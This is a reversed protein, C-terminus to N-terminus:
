CTSIVTMASCGPPRRGSDLLCLWDAKGTARASQSRLRYVATTKRRGRRSAPLARFLHKLKATPMPDIFGHIPKQAAGAHPVILLVGLALM